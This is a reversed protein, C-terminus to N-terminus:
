KLTAEDFRYHGIGDIVFGDINSSYAVAQKTNVLPVYGRVESQLLAEIERYAKVRSASDELQRAALLKEHVVPHFTRSTNGAAPEGDAGDTLPGYFNDPDGNDTMWGILILEYKGTSVGPFLVNKDEGQIRADLGIAKLQQRVSDAIDQPRPLYPRPQHPFYVTITRGKAGAEEVLKAATAHRKAVDDDWSEVRLDPDYEAMPQAVISYTARATGEYHEIIADRDVALQIAHRLAAEKTNDHQASVGLYCLNLAWWQHLTMAESADVTAWHQRPVDDVLVHGEAKTLYETRTSEDAVPKFIVTRVKPAGNWYDDYAVLRTIKAAPDFADVRFAGTGVANNTVYAQAADAAMGRTAELVKPSVISACFMSLNRLAVRGVPAKLRMTLTMGDADFGAVDSFEPSYPAQALEFGDERLRDLSLKAAAADFPTGDHFTVGERMRFTMSLGDDAAEWSTALAPVLKNVDDPDVRVLTEFIQHIVKVNGGDQTDHPDLVKADDATIVTVLASSDVRAIGSSGAGDTEGGGCAAAGLALAAGLWRRM